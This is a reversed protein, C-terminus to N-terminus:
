MRHLQFAVASVYCKFVQWRPLRRLIRDVLLDGTCMGFYALCFAVHLSCSHPRSHSTGDPGPVAPIFPCRNPESNTGNHALFIASIFPFRNPKFNTGTHTLFIALVFSCINPEPIAGSFTSHFADADTFPPGHTPPEPQSLHLRSNFQLLARFRFVRTCRLM